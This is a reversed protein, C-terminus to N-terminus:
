KGKVLEIVKNLPQYVEDAKIKYLAANEMFHSMGRYQPKTRDIHKTIKDKDKKNLYCIIQETKNPDLTM